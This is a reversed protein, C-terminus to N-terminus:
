DPQPLEDAGIGIEDGRNIPDSWILVPAGEAGTLEQREVYGRSKGITKLLFCVAWGEGDLVARKLALEATDIMEGRANEIAEAVQPFKDRYNYITQANCGLARAAMYVMGANRELAAVVQEVTYKHPKGGRKSAM